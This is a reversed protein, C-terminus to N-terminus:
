EPAPAALPESAAVSIRETEQPPRRRPGASLAVIPIIALAVVGGIVALTGYSTSAVVLGSGLGGGTGAIAICLDVAGQTRARTELPVADTLIATGAVLGFNWGLGLVALAVALGLVSGVPVSAALVGALLLTGGSALALGRGGVRDALRGSIPSPLYMGAIHAAIVVGTAGVAHGHDKMHIPTMTMIAVMVIQTIVMVAAGIAVAPPIAKAGTAMAASHAAGDEAGVLALRRALLLPDPRLRTALVVGAAGYAAAALIFPGALRPIDVREAVDGMTGVLNPGVVAGLTTALLVTSVARGRRSPSALDAGAYRAQLNTATGAGYVLLALLLLPVSDLAAAVVVGVSGLAGVGYGLALGIRRGHRDSLRGVTVAAAASGVTFLAAPIGALSTTGLMDEALLAGVTVGAALGAGSCIQAGVLVRLTHRQEPLEEAPTAVPADTLDV